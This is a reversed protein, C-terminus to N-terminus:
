SEEDGIRAGPRQKKGACFGPKDSSSDPWSSEGVICKVLIAVAVANVFWFAIWGWNGMDSM